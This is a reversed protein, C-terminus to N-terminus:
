KGIGLEALYRRFNFARAIEIAAARMGRLFDHTSPKYWRFKAAGEAAKMAILYPITILQSREEATKAQEFLERFDEVFAKLRRVDKNATGAIREIEEAVKLMLEANDAIIKKVSM